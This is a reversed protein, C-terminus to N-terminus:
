STQRAEAEAKKAKKLAPRGSAKVGALLAQTELSISPDRPYFYVQAPQKLNPPERRCPSFLQSPAPSQLPLCAEVASSLVQRSLKMQLHPWLRVRLQYARQTPRGRHTLSCSCSTTCSKMWTKLPLRLLSTRWFQHLM